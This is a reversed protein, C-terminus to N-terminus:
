IRNKIGCLLERMEAQRTHRVMKNSYTFNTIFIMFIVNIIKKKDCM